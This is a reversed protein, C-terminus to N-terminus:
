GATMLLHHGDPDAVTQAEPSSFAAPIRQLVLRTAAVANDSIRADTSHPPSRYCLLELHPGGAAFELATVEVSVESLADLQDQEIGRNLTRQTEHLGWARYFAVSRATDRVSIASHDIGLCRGDRDATRWRAPVAGPPFELLELPHGEPDRFKFATVGGSAQPLQVPGARSIPTWGSVARLRRFAAAINTVVLAFHQFGLDACTQGTPYPDGPVDFEVLEIRESGLVITISRALACRGASERHFGFAREYFGALAERDHTVLSFRVLREVVSAGM